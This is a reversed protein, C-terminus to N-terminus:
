IRWSNPFIAKFDLHRGLKKPSNAAICECQIKLPQNTPQTIKIACPGFSPCEAGPLNSFYFMESTKVLLCNLMRKRVTSHLISTFFFTSKLFILFCVLLFNLMYDCVCTLLPILCVYITLLYIFTWTFYYYCLSHCLSLM